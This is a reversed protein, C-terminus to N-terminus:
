HGSRYFATVPQDAVLGDFARTVGGPQKPAPMSGHDDFGKNVFDVLQVSWQCVCVVQEVNLPARALGSFRLTFPQQMVFGGARSTECASFTALSSNRAM